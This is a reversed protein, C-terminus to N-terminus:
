ASKTVFNLLPMAAETSGHERIVDYDIFTWMYTCLIEM